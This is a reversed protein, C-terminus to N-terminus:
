LALTKARVKSKLKGSTAAVVLSDEVARAKDPKVLALRKIRDKAGPELIQDLISARQEEM